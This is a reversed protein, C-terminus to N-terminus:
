FFYTFPSTPLPLKLVHNFLVVISGPVAVAYAAIIFPSRINFIWLALASFPVASLM